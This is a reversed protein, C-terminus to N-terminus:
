PVARAPEALEAADDTGDEHSTRFVELGDDTERGEAAEINWFIEDIFAFALETTTLTKCLKPLLKQAFQRVQDVTPEPLEETLVKEVPLALTAEHQAVYRDASSVPLRQARLYAAWGGGRGTRVLLSKMSSLKAGLELKLTKLEARTRRVSAKGDRQEAWLKTIESTLKVEFEIDIPESTLETHNTGGPVDHALGVV